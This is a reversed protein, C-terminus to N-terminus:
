ENNDILGLVYGAAYVFLFLGIGKANGQSVSVLLLTFWMGSSFILISRM